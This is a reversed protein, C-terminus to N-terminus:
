PKRRKRPAPGPATVRGIGDLLLASTRDLFAEDLRGDADLALRLTSIGHIHAWVVKALLTADEGCVEGSNQGRRIVDELQGFARASEQQWETRDSSADLAADFMVAYRARHQTAFRVYAIAMARLRSPFDPAAGAIAVGIEANFLAFGAESIACLLDEKDAFHRYAATRSVGAQAGIERLTLAAVGHKEIVRLGTEILTHRLNGHHYVARKKAAALPV